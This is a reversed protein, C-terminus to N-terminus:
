THVTESISHIQEANSTCPSHSNRDHWGGCASVYQLLGCSRVEGVAQPKHKGFGLLKPYVPLSRTVNWDTRSLHAVGHCAPLVVLCSRWCSPLGRGACGRLQVCSM